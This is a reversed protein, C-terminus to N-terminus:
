SQTGALRYLLGLADMASTAQEGDGQATNVLDDLADNAFGSLGLSSFDEDDPLAVLDTHREWTNLSGFLDQYHELVRDLLARDALSLQGVLVLRIITTAKGEIGALVSDLYDIDDPGQLDFDLSQFTWLAIPHSTVTIDSGDIAVILANGPDNERFATPEPAGSYWVRGTTGVDTTSHRDGLAVYQVQGEGVAAELDVLHILAPDAADPSLVDVAGHGVVITVAESSPVGSIAENVLDVLPKKSTWPAAVIRVGDGVDVPADGALVVVNGPVHKTFTDSRFVSSADLPDHNGPLLYFTVDPTAGMADLARVVVRREVHNTEFVDGGVVIFGCDQYLALQGIARIAEIRAESFRAQSEGSLFHRTMGLQWDATHIFSVM